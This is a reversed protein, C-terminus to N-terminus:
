MRGRRAADAMGGCDARYLLASWASGGCRRSQGHLLHVLDHRERCTPATGSYYWMPWWIIPWQYWPSRFYHTDGSLGSHYNFIRSQLQIVNDVM